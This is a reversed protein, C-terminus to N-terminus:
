IKNLLGMLVKFAKEASNLVNKNFDGGDGEFTDSICKISLCKVNCLFCVRAIAAIEMDCINCGLKNLELKDEKKDIFKAGSAVVAEKIDPYITKTFSILSDDLPIFEDKFEAYQHEKVPDIPSVDYDYNCTKRVVFLEDVKLGPELAGTVGFNMIISCDFKTILLQTASAADIVGYGSKTAFIEHKGIKTKYVIRNSVTYSKIKSGNNLFSKLEREIAIILGIKM